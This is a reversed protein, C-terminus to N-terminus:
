IISLIEEVEKITEANSIQKIIHAVKKFEESDSPLSGLNTEKAIKEIANKKALELEKKNQIDTKVEELIGYIKDISTSANVENLINTIKKFEPNNTSINGLNTLASIEQTVKTKVQILEKNVNTGAVTIMIDYIEETSISANIQKIINMTEKFKQNNSSLNGLNTLKSIENIAKEKALQLENQKMEYNANVSQASAIAPTSVGVLSCCLLLMTIKKMKFVGKKKLSIM